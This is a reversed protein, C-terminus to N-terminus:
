PLEKLQRLSWQHIRNVTGCDVVQKGRIVNDRKKALLKGFSARRGAEDKGRIPLDTDDPLLTFLQSVGVPDDAYTVWWADVLDGWAAGESDARNYLEQLNGLFAPIGAGDFIQGMLTAWQDFGGLTSKHTTSAHQLGYRILTLCAAIIEGQHERVWREIPDHKFGTRLGPHDTKADIRVRISRQAIEPSMLPNNATALWICRVPLEVQVSSGLVRDSWTTATLISALSGSDLSRNLNDLLMVEPAGMLAATLRKRWEDDESAETLPTPPKGLIPLLVVEALKNKGSRAQPAEILHLPTPGNIMDRVYPLLMLAVAHARDADSVFPFDVLLDDFILRKAWELDAVTPQDAVPPIVLGPRPHYYLRASPHYGPTDLLSGDAAFVPVQVIRDIAGIRDDINVLMEDLIAADPKLWPTPGNRKQQIFSAARAVIGRLHIQGITELRARGDIIKVLNLFSDRRFLTPPNNMAVVADWTPGILNAMDQDTVDIQFRNAPPPAAGAPPAPLPYLTPLNKFAAVSSSNNLVCLDAADNNKGPDLALVDGYLKALVDVVAPASKYGASDGDFVVRIAGPWLAILTPLLTKELHGAVGPEGGPVAFAPVGHAHCAIVSPQGNVLYLTDQGTAQALQVAEMLGYLVPDQSNHAPMFKTKPHNFIRYRGGTADPFFLAEFTQGTTPTPTGDKNKRYDIWPELKVSWKAFDAWTAGHKVPYQQPDEPPKPTSTGNAIGLQQQAAALTVGDRKIL